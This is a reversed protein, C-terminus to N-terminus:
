SWRGEFYIHTDIGRKKSERITHQTGKSHHSSMFAYVKDPKGDDLMEINRLPGASTGYKNWQAPFSQVQIGSIKALHEAISDAGVANGAILIDYKTMQNIIGQIPGSNTWDRSGCILVRM